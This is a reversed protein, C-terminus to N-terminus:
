NFPDISKIGTAIYIYIKNINVGNMANNSLRNTTLTTLYCEHSKRTVTFTITHLCIPELFLRTLYTTRFM